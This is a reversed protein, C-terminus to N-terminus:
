KPSISSTVHSVGNTADGGVLIWKSRRMDNTLQKKVLDYGELYVTCEGKPVGPREAFAYIEFDHYLHQDSTNKYVKHVRVLYKMFGSPVASQSSFLLHVRLVAVANKALGEDVLREEASAVGALSIIIAIILSKM